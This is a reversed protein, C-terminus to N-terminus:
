VQHKCFTRILSANIYNIFVVVVIMNKALAKTFSDRYELIVTVNTSSSNMEEASHFFIYLNKLQLDTNGAHDTM